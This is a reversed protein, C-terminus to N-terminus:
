KKPRWLDLLDDLAPIGFDIDPIADNLNNRLDDAMEAVDTTIDALQPIQDTVAKAAAAAVLPLLPLLKDTVIRTTFNGIEQQVKENKLAALMLGILFNNM